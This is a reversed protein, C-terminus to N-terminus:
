QSCLTNQGPKHVMGCERCIPSTGLTALMEEIALEAESKEPLSEYDIAAPVSDPDILYVTIPYTNEDRDRAFDRGIACIRGAADLCIWEWKRFGCNAFWSKGKNVWQTFSSFHFLEPGVWLEKIAKAQDRAQTTQIMPPDLLEKMGQERAEVAELADAGKHAGMARLFAISEQRNNFSIDITASRKRKAM